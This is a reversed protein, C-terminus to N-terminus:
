KNSKVKRVILYVIWFLDFIGVIVVALFTVVQICKARIEMRRMVRGTQKVEANTNLTTDQIRNITIGQTQLEGKIGVLNANVGKINDEISKIINGQREAEIVNGIAVEQQTKKADPEKLKDYNGSLWEHHKYKKVCKEFRKELIGIDEKDTKYRKLLPIELSDAIKYEEDYKIDEKLEAIEKEITKKKRTADDFNEIFHDPRLINELEKLHEELTKIKEQVKKIFEKDDM